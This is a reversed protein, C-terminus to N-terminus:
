KKNEDLEGKNKEIKSVKEKLEIMRLERGVMVQNMKELERTRKLIKDNSDNRYKLLRLRSKNIARVLNGIEDNYSEPLVITLDQTKGTEDAKEIIKKIPITIYKKIILHLVLCSIVVMMLFLLSTIWFWPITNYSSNDISGIYYNNIFFILYLVFFMGFTISLIRTKISIYRRKSNMYLILVM